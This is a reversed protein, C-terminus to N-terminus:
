IIGLKTLVYYIGDESAKKTVFDAKQKLHEEGNGVAIGLGVFELMDVDNGGDGFAMSNSVDINYYNLVKKIAESKSVVAELINMVYSHFRVFQLKPFNVIFKKAEIEDVYLCM